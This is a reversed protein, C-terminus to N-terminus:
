GHVPICLISPICPEIGRRRLGERLWHADYGKDALLYDTELLYDAKPM